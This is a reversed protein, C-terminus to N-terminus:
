VAACVRLGGRGGLTVKACLLNGCCDDGRSCIAGKRLCRDQAVAERGGVAALAVAAAGGALVKFAGRRTQQAGMSKTLADFRNSAM